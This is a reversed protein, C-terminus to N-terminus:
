FLKTFSGFRITAPAGLDPVLERYKQSLSCGSIKADFTLSVKKKVIFYVLKIYITVTNFMVNM